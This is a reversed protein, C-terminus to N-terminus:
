KHFLYVNMETPQTMIKGEVWCVLQKVWYVFYPSKRYFNVQTSYESEWIQVLSSQQLLFIPRFNLVCASSSFYIFKLLFFGLSSVVQFSLILIIRQHSSTSQISEPCPGTDSNKPRPLSCKHEM